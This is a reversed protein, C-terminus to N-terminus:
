PQSDVRNVCDGIFERSRAILRQSEADTDNQQIAKEFQEVAQRCQGMVYYVLGLHYYTKTSQHLRITEVFSDKAKGLKVDDRPNQGSEYYALGLNFHGVWDRSGLETAKRFDDDAAALNKRELQVYGRIRYTDADGAYDEIAQQINIAQDLDDFAKDV